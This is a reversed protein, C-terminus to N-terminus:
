LAEQAGAGTVGVMPDAVYRVLDLTGPGAATLGIREWNISVAVRLLGPRSLALEYSASYTFGDVVLVLSERSEPEPRDDRNPDRSPRWGDGHRSPGLTALDLVGMPASTRRRDLRDFGMATMRDMVRTGVMTAMQLESARAGVQAGMSLLTMVSVGLGAVLAVAVVVEVLSCGREVSSM